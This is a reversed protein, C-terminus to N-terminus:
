KSSSLDRMGFEAFGNKLSHLLLQLIDGFHFHLRYLFAPADHGIKYMFLKLLVIRHGLYLRFATGLFSEIEGSTFLYFTILRIGAM